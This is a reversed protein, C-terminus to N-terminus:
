PTADRVARFYAAMARYEALWVPNDKHTEENKAAFEALTGRFCGCQVEDINYMYYTIRRESGAPGASVIAAQTFHLNAGRLDAGSLDAKIGSPDDNRWLKHLRLIEQLKEAEM